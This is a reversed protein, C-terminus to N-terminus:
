FYNYYVGIITSPHSYTARISLTLHLKYGLALFIITISVYVLPQPNKQESISLLHFHYKALYTFIMCKKSCRSDDTSTWLCSKIHSKPLTACIFSFVDFLKVLASSPNCFSNVTFKIWSFSVSKGPEPMTWAKCKFHESPDSPHGIGVVNAAAIKFEYFADETLDEVKISFVFWYIM